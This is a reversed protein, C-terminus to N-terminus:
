TVGAAAGARRRGARRFTIWGIVIALLPAFLFGLGFAAIGPLDCTHVTPPCHGLRAAVVVIVTFSALGGGIAAALALLLRLWISM